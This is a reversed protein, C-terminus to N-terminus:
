KSEIMSYYIKEAAENLKSITEDISKVSFGELGVSIPQVSVRGDEQMVFLYPQVVSYDLFEKESYGLEKIQKSFESGVHYLMILNNIERIIYDSHTSIILHLGRNVMRAFIRTLLLQNDPHLHIEPEDIVLRSMKQARHRLYFVIDGLAKMTSSTVAFDYEKGNKALKLDGDKTVRVKGRLISKEIDEALDGFGSNYKSYDSRRISESLEASIARPYKQISSFDTRFRESALDKCFLSIGTREATFMAALSAGTFFISNLFLALEFEYEREKEIRERYGPMATVSYNLSGADKKVRLFYGCDLKMNLLETEWDKLSSVVEIKFSNNDSEQELNLGTYVQSAVDDLGEQFVDLLAKPDLVGNVENEKDFRAPNFIKFLDQGESKRSRGLFYGGFSSPLDYLVYSLYTKGTGNPGTFLILPKSIDIEASEIIGLNTFRLIM